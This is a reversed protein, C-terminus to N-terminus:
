YKLIRIIELAVTDIDEQINIDAISDYPTKGKNIIAFSADHSLYQPLIAAPNVMLTSGIAIFLDAKQIRSAAEEFGIVSEGFFVVTPKMVGGCKPCIPVRSAKVSAKITENEPFESSCKICIFKKFNGHINIVNTSGAKEHLGDINQTVLLYLKNNDELKKIFNHGSTPRAKECGEYFEPIAEYFLNPNYHFYNIDFLKEADIDKRSYLGEPGRFDPIGASTSIGAGTLVAIKESQRILEALKEAGEM